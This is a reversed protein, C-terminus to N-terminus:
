KRLKVISELFNIYKIKQGYKEHCERCLGILNSIDKILEPYKGKGRIHHIDVVKKGCRPIECILEHPLLNHYEEMYDLYVKIYSKL